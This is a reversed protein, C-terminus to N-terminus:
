QLINTVMPNKPLYGFDRNNESPVKDHVYMNGLSETHTGSVFGQPNSCIRNPNNDSGSRTLNMDHTMLNSTKQVNPAYGSVIAKQYGDVRADTRMAGSIYAGRGANEQTNYVGRLTSRNLQDDPVTHGAGNFASGAYAQHTSQRHTPRADNMPHITHGQVGAGAGNVGRQNNSQERQTASDVDSVTYTGFQNGALNTRHTNVTERDTDHHLYRANQYGANAGMFAGGLPTTMTRDTDRTYRENSYTGTNSFAAGGSTCTNIEGNTVKLHYPANQRPASVGAPTKVDLPRAGLKEMESDTLNVLQRTNEFSDMPRNSVASSGHVVDGAFTNKRYGNVNDPTIRFFQHFGGDSSTTPDIGLGPGVQQQDTPTVNHNKGTLSNKYVEMDPEFVCGYMNTMGRVPAPAIVEKKNVYDINDSGSFTQLRRDKLSDNTNQAKESRFYPLVVQENQLHRKVDAKFDAELEAPRIPSPVVPNVVKVPKNLYGFIGLLGLAVFEM